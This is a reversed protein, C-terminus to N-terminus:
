VILNLKAIYKERAEHAETETDFYGLYKEKYTAVWKKRKKNWSVGVFKSSMRRRRPYIINLDLGENLEKLAKQYANAADIELDFSGLGIVKRKFNIQAMWKNKNKNWYVGTYKSTKNKQDKSVNERQPILQLNDARNNLPNNDKHDVVIGYGCPVHSHFMMAVLQHIYYGKINTKKSLIVLLYGRIIGGKLIREKGFKLSKIRGLNSVQYCEYDPVDKWIEIEEIM